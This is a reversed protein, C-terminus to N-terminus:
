QNSVPKINRKANLYKETVRTVLRSLDKMYLLLDNVYIFNTQTCLFVKVGPSVLLNPDSFTVSYLEQSIFLSSIGSRLDSVRQIEPSHVERGLQLNFLTLRSTEMARSLQIFVTIVTAVKDIHIAYEEVLYDSGSCCKYIGQLVQRAHASLASGNASVSYTLFFCRGRIKLSTDQVKNSVVNLKRKIYKYKYKYTIRSELLVM